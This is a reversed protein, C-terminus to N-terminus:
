GPPAVRQWDIDGDSTWPVTTWAGGAPDLLYANSGTVDNPFMLIKSSDPSWVWHATGTLKPGTQVHPGTGDARVVTISGNWFAVRTGDPSVVPQGNWATGDNAIFRHPDSGDANMVWLDCCTGTASAVQYPRTYFIQSGDAGYVSGGWFDDSEPDSSRVV